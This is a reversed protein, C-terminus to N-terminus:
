RAPPDGHVGAQRDRNEPSSKRIQELLEVSQGRNRNLRSTEDHMTSVAQRLATMASPDHAPASRRRPVNNHLESITNREAVDDLGSDAVDEQQFHLDAGAWGSRALLEGLPLDLVAALRVLRERRPLEIKGNEIRSIESQRVYEGDASIREALEEQTWGLEQRRRRVVVGLTSRESM